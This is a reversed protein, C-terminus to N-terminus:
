QSELNKLEYINFHGISRNISEPLIKDLGFPFFTYVQPLSPKPQKSKADMALLVNFGPPCPTQDGERCVIVQLNPRRYYLLKQHVSGEYYLLTPKRYHDYLYHWAGIETAAPVFLSLCAIINATWLGRLILPLHKQLSRFRNELEDLSGMMLIPMFGLMPLLFRIEKHGILCHIIVFPAVISTLIDLPFRVIQRITALVYLPGFPLYISVMFLYAFWPSVGSLRNMTGTVINQYYYNYPSLVLRGYFFYDAVITFLFISLLISACLLIWPLFARKRACNMLFWLILGLISFGVQFRCSFSLGLLLGSTIIPLNRGGKEQNGYFLGVALLLLHGCINESNFHTNSYLVLWTFLSLLMLYHRHNSKVRHIFADTFVLISVISLIGSALYIIYNVAFPNVEHTFLGFLRYVAVVMWVQISPRMQSDFEWLRLDGHSVYGLKWAAFEFIQSYEDGCLHGFNTWSSVTAIACAILAYRLYQKNQLLSLL